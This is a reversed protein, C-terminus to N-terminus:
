IGHEKQDSSYRAARPPSNEAPNAPRTRLDIQVPGAMIHTDGDAAVKQARSADAARTQGTSALGSARLAAGIVGRM